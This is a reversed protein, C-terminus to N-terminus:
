IALKAVNEINKASAVVKEEQKQHLQTEKQMIQNMGSNDMHTDNWIVMGAAFVFCAAIATGIRFVKAGNVKKKNYKRIIRIINDNVNQNLEIKESERYIKEAMKINESDIETFRNEKM